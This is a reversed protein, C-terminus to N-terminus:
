NGKQCTVADFESSNFEILEMLDDPKFSVEKFRIEDGLGHALGVFRREKEENMDPSAYISRGGFPFFQSITPLGHSSHCYGKFYIDRRKELYPNNIEKRESNLLDLFEHSVIETLGPIFRPFVKGNYIGLGANIILLNRQSLDEKTIGSKRLQDKDVTGIFKRADRTQGNKTSGTLVLALNETPPPAAHRYREPNQELILEKQAPTVPYIGASRLNPDSHITDTLAARTAFGIKAFPGHNIRFGEREQQSKANRLSRTPEGRNYEVQTIKSFYESIGIGTGAYKKNLKRIAELSWVGRPDLSYGEGKRFPVEYPGLLFPKELEETEQKKM